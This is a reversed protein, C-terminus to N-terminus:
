PAIDQQVAPMSYVGTKVAPGAFMLPISVDYEWASGHMYAVGPDPRTIFDGERPVILLQGTRGPFYARAFMERFRQRAATAAADAPKTLRIRRADNGPSRKAQRGSVPCTMALLALGLLAAGCASLKSPIAFTRRPTM